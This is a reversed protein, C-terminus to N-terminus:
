RTGRRGTSPFLEAETRPPTAGGAGGRVVRRGLREPAVFAREGGGTEVGPPNLRHFCEGRRTRHIDRLTEELRPDQPTPRQDRFRGDRPKEPRDATRPAPRHDRHGSPRRHGRRHHQVPVPGVLRRTPPQMDPRVHEDVDFGISYAVRRGPTQDLRHLWDILTHSAGAGDSTILLDDHRGAPVQAIAQHLVEILDQATNAGANGPRPMLAALEGTNDIWVGLSHFGFTKKFTAEAHEKRSHALTITGDVRLVITDGMSLDGAYIAQPVGAPLLSWLHARAAARATDIRHLGGDSIEGLARLATTDSAVPGFLAAQARLAEIDYVDTGGAAISCAIDTLVRGRDHVPHFGPKTLVRSIGATLGTRDALMRLGAVGVMAVVGDGDATVRLDKSWGTLERM